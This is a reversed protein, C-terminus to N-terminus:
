KTLENIIEKNKDEITKNIKELEKNKENELHTKLATLYEEGFKSYMYQFWELSKNGGILHFPLSDFSFDNIILAFPIEDLFYDNVWGCSQFNITNFTIILNNDLEKRKRM